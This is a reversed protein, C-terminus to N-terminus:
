QRNQQKRAWIKVKFYIYMPFLFSLNIAGRTLYYGEALLRRRLFGSQSNQAALRAFDCAYRLFRMDGELIRADHFLIAEFDHKIISIGARDCGMFWATDQAWYLESDYAPVELDRKFIYNNLNRTKTFIEGGQHVAGPDADDILKLVDDVWNKLPLTDSEICVVWEGQAVDRLVSLKQGLTIDRRSYLIMGTLPAPLKTIIPEPRLDNIVCVQVDDRAQLALADLLRHLRQDNKVPILVSLRYPNVGSNNFIIDMQDAMAKACM